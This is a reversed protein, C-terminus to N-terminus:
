AAVALSPMAALHNCEDATIDSLHRLRQSAEAADWRHAALATAEAFLPVAFRNRTRHYRSLAEMEADPYMLAEHIAMAALEADRLSDSIGHAPFPDKTFGADGVLAWGPGVPTRIFGEIGPTQRFRGVRVASRMRMAMEPSSTEMMRDFVRPTDLRGTSRRFMVFANTLGENTPIFGSAAGPTFQFEYGTTDLGEFYGYIISNTAPHTAEIPSDAARAIRSRMGDAGVVFRTRVRQISRGSDLVVGDIRGTGDRTVDVARASSSFEVGAGIAADLIHADLQQRRPAYLADVGHEDRFDFGIKEEGFGLTINRVPPTGLAKIGELLGWRHLQLVGTRMLAHTSLTDSRPNVRDVVLVQHGMRALLLATSAGAVRGGVVVIERSANM